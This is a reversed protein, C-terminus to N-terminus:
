KLTPAEGSLDWIDEPWGLSKAVSSITADAAAAKGHYAQQHTATSYSPLPPMANVYDDQDELEEWNDLLIMDYRRWCGSYTGNEQACGLIAGPAYKDYGIRKTCDITKNWAICNTISSSKAVRGVLGAAGATESTVNGTAYSNSLTMGSTTTGVLGGCQQGKAVVDMSSWCDSVTLGTGQAAGILGGAYSGSASLSGKSYTSKIDCQKSNTNIGGVVGGGYGSVNLTGDYYCGSIELTADLLGVIGGCNNQLNTVAGTANSESIKLVGNNEVAGVLGGVGARGKVNGSFSCGTVTVNSSRIRGILGGHYNQEGEVKGKVSSNTITVTSAYGLQGIFCSNCQGLALTGMDIDTSCGSINLINGAAGDAYGIFGGCTTEATASLTANHKFTSGELVHCDTITTKTGANWGIFGGSRSNGVFTTTVDVEANCRTFTSEGQVKGVFGGADQTGSVIVEANCDTFTSGVVNGAFGGSRGVASTVTGQIDVNTVAAPKGSTGIYGGIIGAVQGKSVIAANIVNLDKCSGYLVGFLSPYARGTDDCSFNSITNNGGDFHIKREFGEDCNVPVYNTVGEMNIDNAMKFWTEGGLKALSRMDVMDQATKLVYPDDETGSGNIGFSKGAIMGSREVVIETAVNRIVSATEGKYATVKFGAAFTQPLVAFYYDGAAIASAGSAPLLSVSESGQEAVAAWSPTDSVTVDIAGAVIEGSNGEFVVKTVNDSSVNIKVLGCVNRFAMMGSVEQAVALHTSFSGLVATQESPLATTVVGSTLVADADYPYLGYFTGESPVDSSSTSLTTTLGDSQAEYIFKSDGVLVSVQDGKVWEVKSEDAGPRLIAKSATADFSAEFTKTGAQPVDDNMDQVCSVAMMAIVLAAIYSIKKM